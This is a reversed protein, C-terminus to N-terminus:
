ATPAVAATKGFLDNLAYGAGRVTRIPDASHGRNLAKRLRGVHVDVTREDIYIENGWVGDLLIDAAANDPGTVPIIFAELWREPVPESFEVRQPQGSQGALQIADVLAPVRIAILALEGRRLGPALRAAQANFALVRGRRSLAVVADPFGSVLSQLSPNGFVESPLDRTAAPEKKALDVAILAALSLFGFAALAQTLTLTATIAFAAFLIAAAAVVIGARFNGGSGFEWRRLFEAM